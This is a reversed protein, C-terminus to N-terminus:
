IACQANILTTWGATSPTNQITFRDGIMLLKRPDAPWSYEKPKPTPNGTKAFDTWMRIIAKSISAENSPERIQPLKSFMGRGQFQYTLEDMHTSVTSDRYLKVFNNKGVFAFHYIYVNAGAQAYHQSAEIIPVNFELNGLFKYAASTIFNPTNKRRVAGPQQVKLGLKQLGKERAVPNVIAEFIDGFLQGEASTFGTMLSINRLLLYSEQLLNGPCSKLYAMPSGEREATPTFTIGIPIQMVSNDSLFQHKVIDFPNAEKLCRIMAEPKTINCLLATALRKTRLNQEWPPNWAWPALISGSQAIVGSILRRSSPHLSHFQASAAGASQGMLVIRNRDGGLYEANQWVWRLAMAQDKLGMNGSVLGEFSLFGLAGLRYNITVLVVDEDMIMDPGYLFDDMDGSGVTFSGGHIFFIIPMLIKGTCTRERCISRTYINLYLCDESGMVRNLVWWKQPCPRRHRQAGRVGEWPQAERPPEFRLDAIPSKAYPVGKFAAYLKGQSSRLWSGRLKGLSTDIIPDGATSDVTGHRGYTNVSDEEGSVLWGLALVCLIVQSTRSM